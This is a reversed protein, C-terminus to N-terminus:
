KLKYSLLSEKLSKVMDAVEREAVERTEQKENRQQNQKINVTVKVKGVAAM